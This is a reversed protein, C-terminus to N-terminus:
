HQIWIKECVTCTIRLTMDEDARRVQIEQPITSREGCRPCVYLSSTKEHIRQNLRQEVEDREARLISGSFPRLDCPQMAAIQSPRIDGRFIATLIDWDIIQAIYSILIGYQWSFLTDCAAIPEVGRAICKSRAVNHAGRAVNIAVTQLADDCTVSEGLRACFATCEPSTARDRMVNRLSALIRETGIKIYDGM